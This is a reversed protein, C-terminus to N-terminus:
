LLLQALANAATAADTYQNVFCVDCTARYRQSRERHVAHLRATGGALLPRRGTEIDREIIEIPRDILVIVGNAKMFVVNEDRLIVGGGTAVVWRSEEQLVAARLAQSEADRFGEEGCEAFIQAISCGQEREIRDDLDLFEFELLSALISGISSKGSGMMGTLFVHGARRGRSAQSM